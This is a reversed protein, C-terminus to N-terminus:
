SFLNGTLKTIEKITFPIYPDKTVIRKRLNELTYFKWPELAELSWSKLFLAFLLFERWRLFLPIQQIIEPVLGHTKQYGRLFQELYSFAFSHDSGGIATAQWFAHYLSVAIDQAYWGYVCDDFDIVGLSEKNVLINGQHFDNHILGFSYGSRPLSEIEAIVENMREKIIEDEKKTLFEITESVPTYSEWFVPRMIQHKPTVSHIRGLTEGWKEFFQENWLEPKTVDIPEGHVQTFAVVYFLNDEISVVEYCNGIHSEKPTPVHIGAETLQILWELEAQVMKLSRRNPDILRIYLTEAKHTCKLIINQYGETIWEFTTKDDGYFVKIKEM